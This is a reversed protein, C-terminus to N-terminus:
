VSVTTFALPQDVREDVENIAIAANSWMSAEQIATMALSKERSDPCSDNVVNAFLKAADRVAQYRQPQTGFPSHYTFVRDVSFKAM